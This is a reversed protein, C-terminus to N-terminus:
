AVGFQVKASFIWFQSEKYTSTRIVAFIIKGVSLRKGEQWPQLMQYGMPLTLMSCYTLASAFSHTLAFRGKPRLPFSAQSSCAM